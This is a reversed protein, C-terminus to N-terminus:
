FHEEESECCPYPDPILAPLDATDVTDDTDDTDYDDTNLRNFCSFIHITPGCVWRNSTVDFIADLAVHQESRHRQLFDFIFDFAVNDESRRSALFDFIERFMIALEILHM